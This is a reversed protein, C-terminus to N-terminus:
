IGVGEGKDVRRERLRELSGRRMLNQARFFLFKLSSDFISGRTLRKKPTRERERGRRREGRERERELDTEGLTVKLKLRGRRGVLKTEGRGGERRGRGRERRQDREM